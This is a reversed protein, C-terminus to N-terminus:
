FVHSTGSSCIGANLLCCFSLLVVFVRPNGDIGCVSVYSTCLWKTNSGGSVSTPLKYCLVIHPSLTQADPCSPRGGVAVSLEVELATFGLPLNSVVITTTRFHCIARVRLQRPEKCIDCSTIFCSAVTGTFPAKLM